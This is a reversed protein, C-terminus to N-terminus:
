KVSFLLDIEKPPKGQRLQHAYEKMKGLFEIMREAYEAEAFGREIWYSAPIDEAMYSWENYENKLTLDKVKMELENYKTKLEKNEDRLTDIETQMDYMRENNDYSGENQEDKLSTIDEMKVELEHCRKKIETNEAKIDVNNRKMTDIEIQMDKLMAEISLPPDKTDTTSSCAAATATDNKNGSGDLADYPRKRSSSACSIHMPSIMNNRNGSESEEMTAVPVAAVGKNNSDM